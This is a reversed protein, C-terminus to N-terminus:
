ATSVSKDVDMDMRKMLIARAQEPDKPVKGPVEVFYGLHKEEIARMKDKLDPDRNKWGELGDFDWESIHAIETAIQLAKKSNATIYAIRHGSNLHTVCWITPNRYQKMHIGLGKYINGNVDM